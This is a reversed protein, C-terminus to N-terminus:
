NATKTDHCTHERTPCLYSMHYGLYFMFFCWFQEENSMFKLMNQVNILAAM